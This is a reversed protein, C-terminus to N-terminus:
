ETRAFRGYQDRRKQNAHFSSHASAKLVVLNDPRNNLHNGDIHHVEEDPLLQRGIKLEALRRHNFVGEVKPNRGSIGTGRTYAQSCKHCCFNRDSRNIDSRKKYFSKDCWDCSVLLKKIKFKAACESSCFFHKNRNGHRERRHFPEGCYDCIRTYDKPM